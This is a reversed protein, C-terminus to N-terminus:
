LVLLNCLLNTESEIAIFSEWKNRDRLLVKNPRDRYDVFWNITRYILIFEIIKGAEVSEMQM